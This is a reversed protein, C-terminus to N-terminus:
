ENCLTAFSNIAVLTKNFDEIFGMHGCNEIMLILSVKTLTAQALSTEYPVSPDQKGIVFLFPFSATNLMELHGERDRMALYQKM